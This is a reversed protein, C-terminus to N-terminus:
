IGLALWTIEAGHDDDQSRLISRVMERFDIAGDRLEFEGCELENWVEWM